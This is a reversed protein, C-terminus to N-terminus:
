VTYTSTHRFDISNNRSWSQPNTKYDMVSVDSDDTDCPQEDLDSGHSSDDGDDDSDNPLEIRRQPHVGSPGPPVPVDM